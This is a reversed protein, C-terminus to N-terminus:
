YFANLHSIGDGSLVLEESPSIIVTAMDMRFVSELAKGSVSFSMGRAVSSSLAYNGSLARGASGCLRGDPALWCNLRVKGMGSAPAASKQIQSILKSM